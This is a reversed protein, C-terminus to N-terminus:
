TESTWFLWKPKTLVLALVVAVLTLAVVAVARGPELGLARGLPPLVQAQVLDLM